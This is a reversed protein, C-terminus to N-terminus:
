FTMGMRGDDRGKSSTRAPTKSNQRAFTTKVTGETSPQAAGATRNGIPFLFGGSRHAVAAKMTQPMDPTM